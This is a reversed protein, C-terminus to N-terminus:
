KNEWFETSKEKFRSDQPDLKEEPDGSITEGARGFVGLLMYIITPILLLLAALTLSLAWELPLLPSGTVVDQISYLQILGSLILLTIGKTGAKLGLAQLLTLLLLFVGVAKIVMSTASFPYTKFYDPTLFHYPTPLHISLPAAVADLVYGLILLGVTLTLAHEKKM